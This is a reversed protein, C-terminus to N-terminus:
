SQIFVVNVEQAPTLVINARMLGDDEARMRRELCKYKQFIRVLTYGMEALAFQQGLCIRPGGNFPIYTWPKPIWPGENIKESDATKSGPYMWRHPHYERPYPFPTGDAYADPYLDSRHMYLPSYAVITDKKVHVPQTGSPGGGSPLTTDSLAVRMNFPIAPYLRLTEKLIAQLYRMNKLDAYTPASATGVQALIEERLRQVVEPHGSLEYLTRALTAATTDRAALLVFILQDRILKPDQTFTALGELFNNEEESGEMEEFSRRGLALTRTIFPDVFSNITKLGEYYKAKPLFVQLPRFITITLLSIKQPSSISGTQFRGRWQLRAKYESCTPLHQLSDILRTQCATSVRDSCSTRPLTWPSDFASIWFMSQSGSM